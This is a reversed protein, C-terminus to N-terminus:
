PRDPRKRGTEPWGFTSVATVTTSVPTVMVTTTAVVPPVTSPAISAAQPAISGEQPAILSVANVPRGGMWKTREKGELKSGSAINKERNSDKPVQPQKKLENLYRGVQKALLLCVKHAADYPDIRGQGVLILSFVASVVAQMIEVFDIHM